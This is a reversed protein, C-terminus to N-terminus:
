VELKWLITKDLFHRIKKWNEEPHMFNWKVTCIFNDISLPKPSVYIDYADDLSSKLICLEPCVRRVYKEDRSMSQRRTKTVNTKRSVVGCEEV